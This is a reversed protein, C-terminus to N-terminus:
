ASTTLWISNRKAASRRFLCRASCLLPACPVLVKPPVAVFKRALFSPTSGYTFCNCTHCQSTKASAQLHKTYLASTCPHVCAHTVRYLPVIIENRALASLLPPGINTPCIQGHNKRQLYACLRSTFSARVLPALTLTFSSMAVSSRVLWHVTTKVPLPVMLKMLRFIPGRPAYKNSM